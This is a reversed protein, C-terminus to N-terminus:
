LMCYAKKWGLKHQIYVATETQIVFSVLSVGLFFAAFTYKRRTANRADYDPSRSRFTSRRAAFTPRASGNPTEYSSRGRAEDKLLPQHSRGDTPRHMPPRPASMEGDIEDLDLDNGSEEDEEPNKVLHGNSTEQQGPEPEGAGSISSSVPPPSQSTRRKPPRSLHTTPFPEPHDSQSDPTFAASDTDTNQDAKTLNSSAETTTRTM